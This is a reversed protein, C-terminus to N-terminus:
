SYLSSICCSWLMGSIFPAPFQKFEVPEEKVELGDDDFSGERLLDVTLSLAGRGNGEVTATIVVLSAEESSSSSM